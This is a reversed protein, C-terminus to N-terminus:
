DSRASRDGRGNLPNHGPSRHAVAQAVENGGISVLWGLVNAPTSPNAAVAVRVDPHVYALDALEAASTFPDAARQARSSVATRSPAVPSEALHAATGAAVRELASHVPIWAHLVRAGVVALFVAPAFAAVWLWPTLALGEYSGALFGAAIFIGAAALTGMRVRRSVRSSPYGAIAGSLLLLAGIVAYASQEAGWGM